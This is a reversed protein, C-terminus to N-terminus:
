YKKASSRCPAEPLSMMTNGRSSCTSPHDCQVVSSNVKPSGSISRAQSRNRSSKQARLIHSKHSESLSKCHPEYPWLLKNIILTSKIGKSQPFNISTAPFWLRCSHFYLADRQTTLEQWSFEISNMHLLQPCSIVSSLRFKMSKKKRRSEVPLSLSSLDEKHM